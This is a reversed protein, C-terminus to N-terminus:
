SWYVFTIGVCESNQQMNFLFELCRSLTAVQKKTNDLERYSLWLAKEM